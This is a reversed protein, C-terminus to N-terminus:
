RGQKKKMNYVKHTSSYRVKTHYSNKNNTKDNRKQKKMICVKFIQLFCVKDHYCFENYM